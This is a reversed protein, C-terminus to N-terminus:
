LIELSIDVSNVSHTLEGISIMEVGTAAIKRINKLTVRGSAELKPLRYGTIPLRYNRIKVAKKIDEIGMNDLMIIDPKLKLAERFEKLDKAEIEIQYKKGIKELDRLNRYKKVLKLHNDKVLVMEDLRFRHNYGGGIRVAYKELLRLGPITKRTDLIKAKYPRVAQVFKKTKTAVGSLLCLFNLAVRECALIARAKGSIVALRKNAKVFDGEKVLSRFKIDKDLTKFVLKAVDLGCVVLNDRAILIAKVRKNFPILTDTTIDGTGIDEKLASRVIDKLSIENAYNEM